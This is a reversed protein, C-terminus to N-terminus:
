AKDIKTLWAAVTDDAGSAQDGLVALGDLIRADPALEAIDEHSRGLNSVIYTVFPAVMKGALDHTSVFSRIPPTLRVNWLPSGLFVVDYQAIDEIQTKFPPLFGSQQEVVNQAVLADYNEPYPVVPEIAVLDGGTRAHIMEAITRTHGTRSYYAVLVRRSAWEQALSAQAALLRGVALGVGGAM